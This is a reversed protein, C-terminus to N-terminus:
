RILFLDLLKGSSIVIVHTSAYNYSYWFIGNGSSPMTFRRDVPVGCEGGEDHFNGWSPHYGGATGTGTVFFSIHYRFTLEFFAIRFSVVQTKGSVERKM